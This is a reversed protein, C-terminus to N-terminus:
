GFTRELMRGISRSLILLSKNLNDDDFHADAYKNNTDISLAGLPINDGDLIPVALISKMDKWVKASDVGRDEHSLVMGDWIMSKRREYALGANGSNDPLGLMYDVYGTMNYSAHMKLEKKVADHLFISSRYTKGEAWFTKVVFEPFMELLNDFRSDPSPFHAEFNPNEVDKPSVPVMYSGAVFMKDEALSQTMQPQPVKKEETENFGKLLSEPNLQLKASKNTVAFTEGFTEGSEYSVNGYLGSFAGGIGGAINKFQQKPPTVYQCLIEKTKADCFTLYSYGGKNGGYVNVPATDVFFNKIRRFLGTM